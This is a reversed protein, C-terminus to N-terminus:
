RIHLIHFPLYFICEQVDINEGENRRIYSQYKTCQKAMGLQLDLELKTKKIWKFNVFNHGM